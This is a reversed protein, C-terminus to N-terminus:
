RKPPIQSTKNKKLQKQAVYKEIQPYMCAFECGFIYGAEAEERRVVRAIVDIKFRMEADEYRIHVKSGFKFEPDEKSHVIFGIGSASIDRVTIPVMTNKDIVICDGEIGVFVRFATRRNLRVGDGTSRICQCVQGNVKDKTITVSNWFFPVANERVAMMSIDIDPIDFSVMADGHLFPNVYVCDSGQALVDTSLSVSTEGRVVTVSIIYDTTIEGLKM